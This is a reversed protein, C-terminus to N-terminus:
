IKGCIPKLSHKLADIGTDKVTEGSGIFWFCIDAVSLLYSMAWSECLFQLPVESFHAGKAPLFMLKYLQTHCKILKRLRCTLRSMLRLSKSYNQDSPKFPWVYISNQPKLHSELPNCAKIMFADSVIPKYKHTARVLVSSTFHFFFYLFSLWTSNRKPNVPSLKKKSVSVGETQPNDGM